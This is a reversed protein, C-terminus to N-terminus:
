KTRPIRVPNSPIPSIEAGQVLEPTMWPGCSAKAGVEKRGFEAKFSNKKKSFGFVKEKSPPVCLL